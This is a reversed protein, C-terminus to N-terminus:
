RGDRQRATFSVGPRVILIVPEGSGRLVRKAAVTTITSRETLTIPSLRVSKMTLRLEYSDDTPVVEHTIGLQAEPIEVTMNSELAALGLRTRPARGVRARHGPKHQGTITASTTRKANSDRYAFM